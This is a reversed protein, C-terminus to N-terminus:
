AVGGEFFFVSCIIPDWNNNTINNFSIRLESYMGVEVTASLYTQFWYQNGDVRNQAHTQIAKTNEIVEWEGNQTKGEFILLDRINTYPYINYDHYNYILVGFKNSLMDYSIYTIDNDVKSQVIGTGDVTGFYKDFEEFYAYNSSNSDFSNFIIRHDESEVNTLSHDKMKSIDVLDDFFIIKDKHTEFEVGADEMTKFVIKPMNSVYDIGSIISKMYWFAETFTGDPRILWLGQLDENKPRESTGSLRVNSYVGWYTLKYVGWNIATEIEHVIKENFEADTNEDYGFETVMINKKGVFDPNKYYNNPDTNCLNNLTASYLEDLLDNLDFMYNGDADKLYSYWDSFSYLDCYTYPVAVDVLRWRNPVYPIDQGIHCVEFNGYVKASTQVVRNRGEIIGDQRANIYGIYAQTLLEKQEDNVCMDFYAGYANDGEWNSLIFIKNTNSYTTLLYETLDAFESIVSEYYIQMTEMTYGNTIVREWPCYVFEYAVMLYTEIEELEFLEKYAPTKALDEMCNIANSGWNHNFPYMSAYHNAFSFKYVTSGLDKGVFKAGEVLYNLDTFNYLGGWNTAGLIDKIEYGYESDPILNEEISEYKSNDVYANVGNYILEDGVQVVPNINNVVIEEGIYTSSEYMLENRTKQIVLVINIFEDDLLIDFNNGSILNNNIYVQVDFYTPAVYNIIYEGYNLANFTKIVNQNLVFGYSTLDTDKLTVFVNSNMNAFINENDVVCVGLNIECNFVREYEAYFSATESINDFSTIQTGDETFWGVFNYNDVGVNTPPVISSGTSIAYDALIEGNFGIFSVYKIDETLLYCYVTTDKAPMVFNFIESSCDAPTKDLEDVKWCAFSYNEVLNSFSLEIEDGMYYEGSGIITAANEPYSLVNLQYKVKILDVYLYVNNRPMTFTCSSETSLVEGSDTYIKEVIFGDKPTCNIEVTQGVTYYDYLGTISLDEFNYVAKVFYTEQAFYSYISLDYDPMNFVYETSTSLTSNDKLDRWELFQYGLNVSEIIASIETNYAVQEDMTTFTGANGNSTTIVLHYYNIDYTAYLNVNSSVNTISNTFVDGASNIQTTFSNKFTHGKKNSPSVGDFNVSYEPYRTTKTTLLQNGDESYFNISFNEYFVRLQPYGNNYFESSSDGVFGWTRPFNNSSNWEWSSLPSQTNNKLNSADLIVNNSGSITTNTLNSSNTLDNHISDDEICVNSLTACNNVTGGDARGVIGGMRWYMKNSVTLTGVNYSNNLTGSNLRGVVGGLNKRVVVAGSSKAYINTANYCNSITGSEMYGVIGGAYLDDDTNDAVAYISGNAFCNEITGYSYVAFTGIDTPEGSDVNIDVNIFGLNKISASAELNIIFGFYSIYKLSSIKYVICDGHLGSITYGQGDYSGGFSMIPSWETSSIDINSTQKYFATSYNGTGANIQEAIYFLDESSNIVYPNTQSGDGEFTAASANIPQSNFAFIPVCCVLTCCIILFFKLLEKKLIRM